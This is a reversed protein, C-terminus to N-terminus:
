EREWKLGNNSKELEAVFDEIVLSYMECLANLLEGKDDFATYIENILKERVFPHHAIFAGAFLEPLLSMPKKVVEAADFGKKEMKKVSDRTFELVYPRENYVFKIKSTM